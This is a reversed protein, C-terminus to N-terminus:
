HSKMFSTKFFICKEFIDVGQVSRSATHGSKFGVSSLAFANM